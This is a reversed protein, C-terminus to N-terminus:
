AIMNRAKMKKMVSAQSVRTYKTHIEEAKEDYELRELQNIYRYRKLNERKQQLNSVGMSSNNMRIYTSRTQNPNVAPLSPAKSSAMSVQAPPPLPPLQNHELHYSSHPALSNIHHDMTIISQIYRSNSATM